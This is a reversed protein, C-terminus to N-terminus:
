ARPELKYSCLCLKLDFAEWTCCGTEWSQGCFGGLLRQTPSSVM